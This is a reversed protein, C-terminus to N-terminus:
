IDPQGTAMNRIMALVRLKEDPNITELLTRIQADRDAESMPLSILTEPLELRTPFSPSAGDRQVSLATCHLAGPLAALLTERMLSSGDHSPAQALDRSPAQALIYALAGLFAQSVGSASVNAVEDCVLENPFEEKATLVEGAKDPNSSFLLCGVKSVAAGGAAVMRQSTGDEGGFSEAHAPTRTPSLLATTTRTAREAWWEETVQKSEKSSPELIIIVHKAGLRLVERAQDRFRQLM